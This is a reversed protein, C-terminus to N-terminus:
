NGVYESQVFVGIWRDVGAMDSGFSEIAARQQCQFLLCYNVQEYLPLASGM